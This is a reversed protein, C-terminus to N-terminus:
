LTVSMFEIDCSATDAICFCSKMIHLDEQIEAGEEVNYNNDMLLYSEGAKIKVRFTDANSNLIKLVVFNTDDLNTVRLYKFNAQVGEAVYDFVPTYSSSSIGMIRKVVEGNDSFVKNITSDYAVGNLTYSETISVTLDSTVVTTAM